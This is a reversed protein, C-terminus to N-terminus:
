AKARRRPSGSSNLPSSKTWVSMVEANAYLSRQRRNPFDEDDLEARKAIDNLRHPRRPRDAVEMAARRDGHQRGPGVGVQQAPRGIEVRHPDVFPRPPAIRQTQQPERAAQAGLAEVPDVVEGRPLAAREIEPQHPSGAPRFPRPDDAARRVALRVRWLPPAHVREVALGIM